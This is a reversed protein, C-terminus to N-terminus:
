DLPEQPVQFYDEYLKTRARVAQEDLGTASFTYRHVGHKDSANAKLFDRMRQEVVATFPVELREYLQALAAFPDRVLDQYVFDVAQGAPVTADERATVSADNGLTLHEVWEEAMEPITTTGSTMRQLHETLSATSALVRLPDRHTNIITAAPYERFLAPLCWLHAPSKLLWRDAPHRWQLVQLFRRHYRYAPAM